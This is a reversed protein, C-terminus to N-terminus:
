ARERMERAFEEGAKRMEEDTMDKVHTMFTWAYGFPDVIEAVRDGWFM